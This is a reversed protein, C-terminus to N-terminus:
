LNNLKTGNKFDTATEHEKHYNKACSKLADLFYTTRLPCSMNKM